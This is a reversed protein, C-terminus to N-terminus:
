GMFDILTSLPAAPLHGGVLGTLKTDGARLDVLNPHAHVLNMAGAICNYRTLTEKVNRVASAGQTSWTSARM